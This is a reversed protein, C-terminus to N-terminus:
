KLQNRISYPKDTKTGNGLEDQNKPDLLYAVCEDENKGLITNTSLNYYRQDSNLRIINRKVADRFDVTAYLLDKKIEKVKNFEDIASGKTSTKQTKIKGDLFERVKTYAMVADGIHIAPPLLIKAFAVMYKVSKKIGLLDSIAQDRREYLTAKHEEEEESNSIYFGYGAMAQDTEEIDSALIKMFKLVGVKLMDEPNRLDIGQVTHDVKFSGLNAWFEFDEKAEFERGYHAEVIAKEAADLGHCWKGKVYPMEYTSETIEFFQLGQKELGLKFETTPAQKIRAEKM